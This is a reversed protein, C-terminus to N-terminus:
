EVTVSKALNRPKDVDCNKFLATYYALLQLPIVSLFPSLIDVGCSKMNVYYKESASESGVGVITAGRSKMEQINSIMKSNQEQNNLLAVVVSDSDILAIPGHKMEGAAYGEAHIYSIEKLKLAGELAIPYCVGRGLYLCSSKSSVLESVNKLIQHDKNLFNRIESPLNLLGDIIKKRYDKSIKKHSLNQEIWLSLLLLSAVQNSFAKTSAVGIERGARIHIGCDTLRAISSNVVNTIGVIIAGKNKAEELASITDATEGSQSIGIVIDKNKISNNNRYRFESAHEVSTKIGCLEEIFYKGLIGAHYSSGCAVITIHDCTAFVNEYGVFGGLKVMGDHIRGKLCLDISKPQEYIEKLMFHDFGEKDAYCDETNLQEIQYSIKSLDNFNLFKELGNTLDCISNNPVYIVNDCYEYLALSDSGVFIGSDNSGVVLPSGKRAILMKGSNDILVISFAGSAESCAQQFSLMLDHNNEYKEYVSYLFVESDTQGILRDKYKLNERISEYNEIIGNHVLCMKGDFVVHPHCNNLSPKGHTAWRTHAVGTLGTLKPSVLEELLGVKGVSKITKLEDDALITLGASDYGRYELKHLGNLLFPLCNHRGKYAVIGCM